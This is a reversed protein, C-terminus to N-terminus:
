VISDEVRYGRVLTIPKQVFKARRIILFILERQFSGDHEGDDIDDNEGGKGEREEAVKPESVASVAVLGVEILHGSRVPVSVAVKSLSSILFVDKVSEHTVKIVVEVVSGEVGIVGLM